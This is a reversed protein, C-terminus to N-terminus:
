DQSFIKFKLMKSLDSKDKWLCLWSLLIHNDPAQIKNLIDM